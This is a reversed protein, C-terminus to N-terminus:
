IGGKVGAVAADPDSIIAARALYPASLGNRPRRFM